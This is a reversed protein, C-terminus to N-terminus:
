EKQGLKEKLKDGLSSTALPAKRTYEQVAENEREMDKARVSLTIKRNKRDITMVKAEVTDGEKLVARADEIRDRAAEAARLYGEVDDGLKVTAGKADVATVVGSVVAGKGHEACYNNFPDGEMQKVGLSIREREPDVALVVAELEDGKKLDRVAEEGARSWSLDTLHILGDIGGELGVFVGFDTISKIQGKVLDGKNHSAAFEEWPNPQCQKIGLSIRRREEDIDLIM